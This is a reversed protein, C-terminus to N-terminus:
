PIVLGRTAIGSLPSVSLSVGFRQGSSGQFGFMTLREFFKAVSDPLISLLAQLPM